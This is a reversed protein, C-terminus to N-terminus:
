PIQLITGATINNPDSINNRSMIAAPDVDGFYCAVGYITTNQPVTYSVPHANWARASPFKAGSQPIKLTLGTEYTPSQESSLGNLSLLEGPDVDFRRAICYPFEGQQLTYSAPKGITSTPPVATTAVAIVPPTNTATTTFSAEVAATEGGEPSPELAEAVADDGTGSTVTVAALATATQAGAEFVAEMDSPLAEPFGSEEEIIVPTALSEDIPAYSQECGTTVLIMIILTSILIIGSKKQIKM